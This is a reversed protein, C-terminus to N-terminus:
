TKPSDLSARVQEVRALLVAKASEVPTAGGAGAHAEVLQRALSDAKLHKLLHDVNSQPKPTSPQSKDTM